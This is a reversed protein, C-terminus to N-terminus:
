AMRFRISWTTGGSRDLTTKGSLQKALMPVLSLGLTGTAGTEVGDPIGVGNDVVKLEVLDGEKRHFVIKIEPNGNWSGPFAHKIANTLLETIILGSPIACDIPLHLSEVDISLRINQAVAAYSGMVDDALETAYLRFNIRGFDESQYLREHVLAMSRIRNQADTFNRLLDADSINRSQLSLLSTIIQLNNKVRHHIEKLLTEKERLSAILKVEAHKRESIDRASSIIGIPRGDIDRLLTFRMEAPFRTGDKKILIHEILLNGKELLRDLGAMANSHDEPAILDFANMGILDESSDFGHMLAAEKSALVITCNLDNIILSDPLSELLPRHADIATILPEAPRSRDESKKQKEGANAPKRHKIVMHKERATRDVTGHM